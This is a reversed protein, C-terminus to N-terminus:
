AVKLRRLEKSYFANELVVSELKGQIQLLKLDLSNVRELDKQFKSYSEDAKSLFSSVMKNMLQESDNLDEAQREARERRAKLEAEVTKEAIESISQKHLLGAELDEEEPHESISAPQKKLMNMMSNNFKM